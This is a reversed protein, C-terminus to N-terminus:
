VIHVILNIVHYPFPDLKFFHYDIAYALMTFPHYNGIYFTTFYHKLNEFNLPAIHKNQNIYHNDDWNTLQNHLGPFFVWITLAILALIWLWHNNSKRSQIDRSHNSKKIEAKKMRIYSNLWRVM